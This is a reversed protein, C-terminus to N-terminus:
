IEEVSTVKDFEHKKIANKKAEEKDKAKTIVEVKGIIDNVGNVRFEKNEKLSQKNYSENVFEDFTRINKM